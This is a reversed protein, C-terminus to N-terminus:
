SLGASVIFKIVYKAVFGFVGLGLAIFIIFLGFRGAKSDKALRYMIFMMYLVLAPLGIALSIEAFAEESM